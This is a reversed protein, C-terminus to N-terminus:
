GAGRTEAGVARRAAIPLAFSLVTAGERQEIRLHGGHLEILHRSLALSIGHDDQVHEWVAPASVGFEVEDDRATVRLGITGEHSTEAATIVLNTLVQRLRRADAMLKPLDPAAHTELRLQPNVLASALTTQLEEVLSPLDVPGCDLEVAGVQLSALELTDDLLRALQQGSHRITTLDRIQLETLPGDLGKLMLQPFGIITNLYTALQHSMRALFQGRLRDIERMEDAAEREQSYTRANEIAVSLQDALTQLVGQDSDGFGGPDRSTLDLAGITRAGIVLPLVLECCIDSRGDCNPHTIFRPARQSIALSVRHTGQVRLQREHAPVARGVGSRM